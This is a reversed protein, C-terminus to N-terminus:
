YTLERGCLPCFHITCSNDIQVGEFVLEFCKTHHNKRIYFLDDFEACPFEPGIAYGDCEELSQCYPCIDQEKYITKMDLIYGPSKRHADEGVIIQNPKLCFSESEDEIEKKMVNAKNHKEKLWSFLSIANTTISIALLLLLFVITINFLTYDCTLGYEPPIVDISGRPTGNIGEAVVCVTPNTIMSPHILEYIQDSFLLHFPVALVVFALTSIISIITIKKM